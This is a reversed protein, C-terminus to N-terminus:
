LVDLHAFIGRQVIALRQKAMLGFLTSQAVEDFTLKNSTMLAIDKGFTVESRKEITVIGNISKKLKTYIEMKEFVEGSAGKIEGHFNNLWVIFREKPFSEYITNLGDITNGQEQGGMIPIHILVDYKRKLATFIDGEKFYELLPYFTSSGTDIVVEKNELIMIEDILDDFRRPDIKGDTTINLWKAGIALISSLTANSPDTDYAVIEYGKTKEHQAIFSAILSKGVGGKAQMIIHLRHKSDSM